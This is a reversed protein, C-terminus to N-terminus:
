FGLEQRLNPHRRKLIVDSIVHWRWFISFPYNSSCMIALSQKAAIVSEISSLRQALVDRLPRFNNLEVLIKEMLSEKSIKRLSTNELNFCKSLLLVTNEVQVSPNKSHPRIVIEGVDANGAFHVIEDSVNIASVTCDLLNIHNTSKIGNCRRCVFFLNDWGFKLAKNKNHPVFHEVEPDSISGQECLYCKDHFILRLADIVDQDKYTRNLALSTPAPYSRTVNFM